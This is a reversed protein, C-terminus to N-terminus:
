AEGEKAKRAARWNRVRVLLERRQVLAMILAFGLFVFPYPLLYWRLFLHWGGSLLLIWPSVMIVVVAIMLLALLVWHFARASEIAVDHAFRHSASVVRAIMQTRIM